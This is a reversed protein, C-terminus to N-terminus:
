VQRSPNPRALSSLPVVGKRVESNDSAVWEACTCQSPTNYETWRPSSPEQTSAGKGRRRPGIAPNMRGVRVQVACVRGCCHASATVFVTTRERRCGRSEHRWTSSEGGRKPTPRKSDRPLPSQSNSGGHAHFPHRWGWTSPKPLITTTPVKCIRGRNTTDTNKASERKRPSFNFCAPLHLPLSALAPRGVSAGEQM